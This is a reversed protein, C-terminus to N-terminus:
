KEKRQKHHMQPSLWTKHPGKSICNPLGAKHCVALIVIHLKPYSPISVYFSPFHPSDFHPKISNTTSGCSVNLRPEEKRYLLPVALLWLRGIPFVPLCRGELGELTKRWQVCVPCLVKVVGHDARSHSTLAPTLASLASDSHQTPLGESCLTLPNSM